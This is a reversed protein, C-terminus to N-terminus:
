DAWTNPVGVTRGDEYHRLVRALIISANTPIANALKTKLTSPPIPGPAMILASPGKGGPDNTIATLNQHEITGLSNM